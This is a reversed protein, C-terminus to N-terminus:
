WRYGLELQLRRRQGILYERPLPQIGAIRVHELYDRDFVNNVTASLSWGPALPRQLYLDVLSYAPRRGSDTNLADSYAAAVQWVNVQVSWGAPNNWAAGLGRTYSPAGPLRNGDLDVSGGAVPFDFSEFRADLLGLAAWLVLQEGAQWRLEFEAGQAQARGANNILYAQALPLEVRVQRDRWASAFLTAQLHVDTDPIALSGRLDLSESREARYQVLRGSNPNPRAGGPRLGRRWWLAVWADGSIDWRLDFYPTQHNERSPTQSGSEVIPFDDSCPRQSTGVMVRCDLPEVFARFRRQDHRRYRLARTGLGWSWSQAQGRLELMLAEERLRQSAAGELLRAADPDSLRVTQGPYFESLPTRSREREDAQREGQSWELRGSWHEHWRWLAGASLTAVREREFRQLTDASAAFPRSHDRLDSDFGAASLWFELDTGSRYDVRAHGAQFDLTEDHAFPDFSRGALPDFAQNLPGSPPVVRRQRPKSRSALASWRISLEPWQDPEFLGRASAQSHRARAPAPGLQNQVESERWNSAASLAWSHGSLADTPTWYVNFGRDGNDAGHLSAEGSRVPAPEATHLRIAGGLGGLSEWGTRPGRLYNAESLRTPLQAHLLYHPGLPMDDLSVQATAGVGTGQEVGRIALQPGIGSVNPAQRGLLGFDASQLPALRLADLRQGYDAATTTQAAPPRAAAGDNANVTRGDIQLRDLSVNLSSREFIILQEGEVRWHFGTNHLLANLAADLDHRGQLGAQSQARLKDASVEFVLSRGSQRALQELGAWLSGAVIHLEDSSADTQAHAVPLLGFVLSLLLAPWTRSRPTGFPLPMMIPRRPAATRSRMLRARGALSGM